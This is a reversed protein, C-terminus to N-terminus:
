LRTESTTQLFFTRTYMYLVHITFMTRCEQVKRKLLCPNTILGNTTNYRRSAFVMSDLKQLVSNQGFGLYSHSYLASINTGVKVPFRDAMIAGNHLFAIQSSAGGVELIGAHGLFLSLPLTFDNSIYVCINAEMYSKSTSGNFYGRLYNLAIWAFAGEEEGSLIRMNLASLRFHNVNPDSLM